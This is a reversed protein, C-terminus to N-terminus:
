GDRRKEAAAFLESLSVDLVGVFQELIGVTPNRRGYEVGKTYTLSIDARRAFEVRSLGKAVRLERLTAGLDAAISPPTL